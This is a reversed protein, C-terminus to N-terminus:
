RPSLALIDQFAPVFPIVSDCGPSHDRASVTYFFSAPVHSPPDLRIIAVTSRSNRFLRGVPFPRRGHSRAGEQGISALTEKGAIPSPRTKSLRLGGLPFSFPPSSQHVDQCDEETQSLPRRDIGGSAFRHSARTRKRKENNKSCGSLRTKKKKRRGAPVASNRSVRTYQM